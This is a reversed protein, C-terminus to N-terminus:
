IAKKFTIGYWIIPILLLGVVLPQTDMVNPEFLITALFGSVAGGFHASHGINGINKKMGYISYLLYGVGFIYGPIPVPFLIFMLKMEPYLLISAYIIGAVAGSAGVASYYSNKRHAYYSFVNGFILSLFYIFTYTSAGLYQVVAESFMYLTFMNFLLHTMDVHLFGSSVLRLKEGRNIGAINFKFRDFFVLDKFGKLSVLVNLLIILTVVSFLVM